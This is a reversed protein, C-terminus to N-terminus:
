DFVYRGNEACAYIYKGLELSQGSDPNRKRTNLLECFVLMVPHRHAVLVNLFGLYAVFGQFYTISTVIVVLPLPLALFILIQNLSLFQTFVLCLFM